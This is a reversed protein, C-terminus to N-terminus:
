PDEPRQTAADQPEKAGVIGSGVRFEQCDWHAPHALRWYTRLIGLLQESLM